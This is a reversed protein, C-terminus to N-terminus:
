VVLERAQQELPPPDGLGLGGLDVRRGGGPPRGAAAPGRREVVRPPAGPPPAAGGGWGGVLGRGLRVPRGGRAPDTTPAPHAGSSPAPSRTPGGVSSARRREKRSSRLPWPASRANASRAAILVGTWPEAASRTFSAISLTCRASERRDPARSRSWTWSSNSNSHGWASTPPM